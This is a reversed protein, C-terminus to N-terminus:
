VESVAIESVREVTVFEAIERAPADSCPRSVALLNALGFTRASALVALNDDVFLTREPDFGETERLKRWFSQEEKPHGLDHSLYIADFYDAIGTVESKLELTDRHSNSVMLLRVHHDAARTLFERAGPLYDIRHNLDRHLDVVDLQLWESWYDLCYWDLKGRMSRMQGFLLKRAEAESMDNQRAFEAPVAELWVHNDFALDLLTGDMDLMLTDCEDLIRTPDTMAYRADSFSKYQAAADPM